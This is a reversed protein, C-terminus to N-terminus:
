YILQFEPKMLVAWLLDALGDASPRGAKGSELTAEAIRREAPTPARGLAYWFVRDTAQSRSKLVPGAPLPTAPNPAVLRDLSPQRDFIFFRSLVTEGQALPANELGAAGRFRTFGKGAIDYVLVSSLKVRVANDTAETSGALTVPGRGERIGSADVPKLSSLPISGNPGVLEAGAWAPTAKDPATSLADQVILYLKKSGSIDVDFPAPAINRSGGNVARAFLSQPEPPLEGLMRKAGRSLWHTLTEGNELEVAQITTAQTDRTSFVQDRIPRGLARTLSSAAVRWERSYNGPPITGPAVAGRNGANAQGSPPSASTVRRPTLGAGDSPEGSIAVPKGAGSPPRSGSSPPAVHWDGTMSAVADAFQEATLRRVEPGDFVYRKAPQEGKRVVAPMQYTRSSVITGILHKLDYGSAVFDSSVWDLLEPSWPEGDMEDVNDVIGHGLLREWIRNVVTRALRGNRPNTFIAAATARRDAPSMSPLPQNLAPYLFAATAYQQQAVDCRYLRLKEEASFYAALSYADKLKWRSIFSDHCSNCKLNIGLFIQATNQAAQMAPTQSASVTGRWNVGILFGDPDSPAVPNLLEGVFKNYPVNSELSALLWSTISKRSATESYYNVGEDNRLLDNWFSIWHESYKTNDSLLRQVLKARKGADPDAVFKHLDEPTPLLGWIDLYARRAFQADSVLKPEAVGNKTLYAATFTDLPSSWSKWPSAPLTPKELTLPPEWKGKAPAANPASRAGQDIWARVTAIEAAALPTGGLPMRPEMEGTIREVLLSNASSGPKVAAGSRGGDLTDEYNALSLGGSRKQQSHCPLCRATLLPHVQQQYDVTAGGTQGALYMNSLFLLGAIIAPRGSPVQM